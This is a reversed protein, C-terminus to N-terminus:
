KALKFGNDKIKDISMRLVYALCIIFLYLALTNGQLVGAVINFYDTDGDLFCVKMNKYLMMIAAVTEKPLGYTLLIQEMKGRHIFDFAKSFDLFLITAELNKACVGELIQCITLIQPIIERFAMKTRRIEIKPEIRNRVLANYIRVM